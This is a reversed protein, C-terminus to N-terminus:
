VDYQGKKYGRARKVAQELIERGEKSVRDMDLFAYYKKVTSINDGLVAAAQAWANPDEALIITASIHRALHITLDLGIVGCGDRYHDYFTTLDLPRAFSTSPFLYDSDCLKARYPHDNILKPRIHSIYWQVIPAADDDAEHNIAKRNKVAASQLQIRLDDDNIFINREEGRFKLTILNGARVPSARYLIANACAASGMKLALMRQHQPAKDWNSLIKRSLKMLLEPSRFLKAQLEENRLFNRLYEQREESMESMDPSSNKIKSLLIKIKDIETKDAGLYTAMVKQKNVMAYLNHGGIKVQGEIQRTNWCRAFMEIMNGNCIDRLRLAEDGVLYEFNILVRIVQQIVNAYAQETRTSFKTYKAPIPRGLDDTGRKAIVFAKYDSWLDNSLPHGSRRSYKDAPHSQKQSVIIEETPLLEAIEPFEDRRNILDNIRVVGLRASRKASGRLANILPQTNETTLDYIHLGAASAARGIAGISKDLHPPLPQDVGGNAKAFYILKKWDPLLGADSKIAPHVHQWYRNLASKAHKRWAKFQMLNAFDPPCIRVKGRGWKKLFANPDAPIDRLSAVDYYLPAKNIAARENALASSPSQAYQSLIYAKVDALTKDHKVVM